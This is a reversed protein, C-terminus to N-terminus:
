LPMLVDFQEAHCTEIEAPFLMIVISAIMKRRSSSPMSLRDGLARMCQLVLLMRINEAGLM